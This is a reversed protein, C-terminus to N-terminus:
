FFWLPPFVASLAFDTFVNDTCRHLVDIVVVALVCVATVDVVDVTMSTSVWVAPAAIATGNRISPCLGMCFAAGVGVINM